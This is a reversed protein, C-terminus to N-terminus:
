CRSLHVLVIAVGGRKRKRYRGLLCLVLELVAPDSMDPIAEPAMHLCSSCVQRVTVFGSAALGFITRVVGHKVIHERCDPVSMLNYIAGVTHQLVEEKPSETLSTIM